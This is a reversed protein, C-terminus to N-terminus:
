GEMAPIPGFFGDIRIIKNDNDVTTVDMGEIVKEGDLRVEWLMRHRQNHADIGSIRHYSATPREKRADVIMKELDDITTTTHLPDVFLVNAACSAQLHGRVLNVDEENWAELYRALNEIASSM